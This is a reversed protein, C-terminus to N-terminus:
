SDSQEDSGGEKQNNQKLTEKIIDVDIVESVEKGEKIEELKHKAIMKLADQAQEIFSKEKKQNINIQINQLESPNLHQLLSNAANVRERQSTGNVAIDRLVEIMQHKYGQYSIQIPADLAQALVLIIKKNTYSATAHMLSQKRSSSRNEGDIYEKVERYHHHSDIFADFRTMGSQICVIFRLARLFSFPDMYKNDYYQIYQAVLGALAEMEFAEYYKAWRNINALALKNHYVAKLSASFFEQLFKMSFTHRNFDFYVAREQDQIEKLEIKDEEAIPITKNIDFHKGQKKFHEM